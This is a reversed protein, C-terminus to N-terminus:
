WHYNQKFIQMDAYYADGVPKIGCNHLVWPKEQRPIVVKYGAKIFERSQSIDYFHWAKFLDKRWPLDYQTAMFLGDVAAVEKYDGSIKGYLSYVVRGQEPIGTMCEGYLSSKNSNWWVPNDWDLDSTGAMGIMGIEKNAQFVALLNGLLMPDLVFVDQHLYIKYKANSTEMMRQYGAAMSPAKRIGMINVRYGQPVALKLFTNKANDYEKENNVCTILAIGHDDLALAGDAKNIM